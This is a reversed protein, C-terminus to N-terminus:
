IKFKGYHERAFAAAADFEAPPIKARPFIIAQTKEGALVMLEPTVEVRAISEATFFMAGSEATSRVGEPTLEVVRKGFPAPKGKATMRRLADRIMRYDYWRPFFAIWVGLYVAALLAFTLTGGGDMMHQSSGWFWIVLLICAPSIFRGRFRSGRFQRGTALLGRAYCEWDERSYDFSLTM